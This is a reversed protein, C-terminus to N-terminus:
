WRPTSACQQQCMVPERVDRLAACALKAKRSYHALASPSAPKRCAFSRPEEQPIARAHALPALDRREDLVVPRLAAAADQPYGHGVVQPEVGLAVQLVDAGLDVDERLHPKM